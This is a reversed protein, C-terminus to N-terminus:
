GKQHLAFAGGQPDLCVAVRDGGPVDMPGVVVQGGKEKVTAVARDLDPIRVYHLWAVPMEGHRNMMGGLTRGNGKYMHYVGHEPGMDM